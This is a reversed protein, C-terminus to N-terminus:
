APCQTAYQQRLQFAKDRLKAKRNGMASEARAGAQRRAADLKQCRQQHVVLAREARLQARYDREEARSRAQLYGDLLERQRALRAALDPDADPTPAIDIATVHGHDCPTASYSVKGGATCKYITAANAATVFASMVLAAVLRYM